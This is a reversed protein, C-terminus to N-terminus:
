CSPWAPAGLAKALVISGARIPKALLYVVTGDEIEAGFAATGFLVAVLPLLLTVRPTSRRHAHLARRRDADAARFVLALLVPVRVLLVLLLTRRRGLLQRLPSACIELVARLAAM